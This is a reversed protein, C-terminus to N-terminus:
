YHRLSQLVTRVMARIEGQHTVPGDEGTFLQPPQSGTICQLHYDITKKIM